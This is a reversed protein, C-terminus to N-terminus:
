SALKKSMKFSPEHVKQVQGFQDEYSWRGSDTGMLEYGLKQYLRRAGANDIAVFLTVQKFGREVLDAELTQMLLTGIGMGRFEPMVRFSFVYADNVGDALSSRGKSDLQVFVQGIVGAQRHEALWILMRGNQMRKFNNRYVRRFHAFEGGWELAPLDKEELLRIIVKSHETIM